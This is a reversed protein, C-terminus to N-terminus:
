GENEAILWNYVSSHPEDAVSLQSHIATAPLNRDACIFM